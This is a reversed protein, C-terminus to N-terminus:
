TKRGAWWASHVFLAPRRPRRTRRNCKVPPSAQRARCTSCGSASAGPSGPRLAKLEDHGCFARSGAAAPSPPRIATYRVVQRSANLEGVARQGPERCPQRRFQHHLGHPHADRGPSGGQQQHDQLRAGAAGQEPAPDPIPQLPPAHPGAHEAAARPKQTTSGQYRASKYASSSRFPAVPPM